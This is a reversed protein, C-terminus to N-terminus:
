AVEEGTKFGWAIVKFEAFTAANAYGPNSIPIWKGTPQHAKWVLFVRGDGVFRALSFESGKFHAWDIMGVDDHRYTIGEDLFSPKFATDHM